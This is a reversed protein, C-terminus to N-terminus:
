ILGRFHVDVNLQIEKPKKYLHVFLTKEDIKNHDLHRCNLFNPMKYNVNGQRKQMKLM